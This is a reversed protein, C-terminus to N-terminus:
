RPLKDKFFDHIRRPLYPPMSQNRFDRRNKLVFSDFERLLNRNTLNFSPHYNIHHIIMSHEDFRWKRIFGDLKQQFPNSYVNGFWQPDYPKRRLYIDKLNGLFFYKTPEDIVNATELTTSIAATISQAISKLRELVSTQISTPLNQDRRCCAEEISNSLSSLSEKQAISLPGQGCRSDSLVKVVRAQDTSISIGQHARGAKKITKSKFKEFLQPITSEVILDSIWLFKTLTQDLSNMYRRPGGDSTRWLHKWVFLINIWHEIRLPKMMLKYIFPIFIQHSNQLQRLHVSSSGEPIRDQFEYVMAYSVLAFEEEFKSPVSWDLTQCSYHGRILEIEPINPWAAISFSAVPSIFPDGRHSGSPSAANEGKESLQLGPSELQPPMHPTIEETPRGSRETPELEKLHRQPSLSDQRRTPHTNQNFLRVAWPEIYFTSPGGKDSTDGMDWPYDENTSMPRLRKAPNNEDAGDSPVRKRTNKWGVPNVPFLDLLKPSVPRETDEILTDPPDIQTQTQCPTRDTEKGQNTSVKTELRVQFDSQRRWDHRAASILNVNDILNEDVKSLDPGISRRCLTNPYYPMTCVELYRMLLLLRCCLGVRM